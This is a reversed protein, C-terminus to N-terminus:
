YSIRLTIKRFNSFKFLLLRSLYKGDGRKHIRGKPFYKRENSIIKKMGRRIGMVADRNKKLM